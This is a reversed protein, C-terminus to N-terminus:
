AETVCRGIVRRQRTAVSVTAAVAADRQWFVRPSPPRVTVGGTGDTGQDEDSGGLPVQVYTESTETANGMSPGQDEDSGGLPVQVYTESTESTEAVNEMSPDTLQTGHSTQGHDSVETEQHNGTRLTGKITIGSLTLLMMASLCILIYSIISSFCEQCQSSLSNGHMRECSGCLPGAYGQFGCLSLPPWGCAFVTSVESCQAEAYSKIFTEYFTCSEVDKTLEELARRRSDNDCADRSLCRQIQTSCPTPHWYGRDPLIVRTTCIGNEPCEKCSQDEDPSFSYTTTSCPECLTGDRLPIEGIVCKQVEIEIEVSELNEEDFDILITYRGPKAFGTVNLETFRSDLLITHSGSFLSDPSSVTSSIVRGTRDVAPGQGFDDRVELDLVLPSGSRYLYPDNAESNTINNGNVRENTQSAFSAIVPGYSGAKNGRWSPCVTSTRSFPQALSSSEADDDTESDCRIGVNGSSSTFIAGGALEASNNVFSTNLLTVLSCDSHRGSCDLYRSDGNTM